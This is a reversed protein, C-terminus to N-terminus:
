ALIGDFNKCLEVDWADITQFPADLRFDKELFEIQSLIEFPNPDTQGSQFYLLYPFYDGIDGNDSMTVSGYFILLDGRSMNYFKPLNLMGFDFGDNSERNQRNYLVGDLDDDILSFEKAGFYFDRAGAWGFAPFKAGSTQLYNMASGGEGKKLGRELDIVIDNETIYNKADETFHIRACPICYSTVGVTPRPFINSDGKLFLNWCSVMEKAIDEEVFPLEKSSTLTSSDVGGSEVNVERSKITDLDITVVETKCKLPYEDKFSAYGIGWFSAEPLLSRAIVSQKCVEYNFDNGIYSEKFIFYAFVGIIIIGLILSGIFWYKYDGKKDM